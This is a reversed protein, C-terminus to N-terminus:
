PEIENFYFAKQPILLSYHSSISILFPNMKGTYLTNNGYTEKYVLYCASELMSM